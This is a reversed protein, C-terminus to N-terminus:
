FSHIGEEVLFNKLKLITTKITRMQDTIINYEESNILDKLEQNVEANEKNENVLKPLENELYKIQAVQEEIRKSNEQIFRKCKDLIDETGESYKEKTIKQKRLESNLDNLEKDIERYDYNGSLNIFANDQIPKKNSYKKFIKLSDSDM